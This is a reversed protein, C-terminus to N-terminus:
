LDSLKKLNMGFHDKSRYLVSVTISRTVGLWKKLFRTCDAELSKVFTIPLNYITLDWSVKSLLLNNYVWCKMIGNLASNDVKDLLNLVKTKVMSHIESEGLDVYIWHGLFKMPTGGIYAVTEGGISLSPDFSVYRGDKVKMGLAVCKSPKARMAGTWELFEELREIQEKIKELRSSLLTLDDAFARNSTGDSAFSPKYGLDKKAQLYDILLNFVILFLVVSLPDGQFLGIMYFFWNSKWEKTSIRVVLEDYYKVM